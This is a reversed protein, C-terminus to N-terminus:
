WKDHEADDFIWEPIILIMIMVHYITFYMMERLTIKGILPHPLIYLDLEAESYKNLGKIIRNVKASIAQNNRTREPFPVAIPIYEKPAKGGQALKEQYRQVLQDYTRSPRNAKGFKYKVLAKPFWYLGDGLPKVSKLIHNAQQAASWKDNNTFHYTAEDLQDIYNIFEQYKLQLSDIIQTKDM